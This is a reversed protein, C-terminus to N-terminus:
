EEMIYPKVALLTSGVSALITSINGGKSPVFVHNITRRIKRTDSCLLCSHLTITRQSSAVRKLGLRGINKLVRYYKAYVLSDFIVVVCWLKSTSCIKSLTIKAFAQWGNKDEAYHMGKVKEGSHITLYGCAMYDLEKEAPTASCWQYKRGRPRLLSAM